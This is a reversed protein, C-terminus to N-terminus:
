LLGSEEIIDDGLLQRAADESDAHAAAATGDSSAAAKQQKLHLAYVRLLDRRIEESKHKKM